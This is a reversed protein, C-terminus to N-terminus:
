EKQLVELVRRAQPTGAYELVALARLRRLKANDSDLLGLCLRLRLKVEASDTTSLAKRMAPAAAIGLSRLERTAGARVDSDDDDLEVILRAIRKPDARKAGLRLSLYPV